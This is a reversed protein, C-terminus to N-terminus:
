VCDMKADMCGVTAETPGYENHILIHDGYKERFACLDSSILQEGGLMIHKLENLAIPCTLTNMIKLHTPTMKIISLEKNSVVGSLADMVDDGYIFVKGGTLLPFYISTVTLDVTESTFFPMAHPFSYIDMLSYIYNALNSHLVQVGKPMGTSGSTYILYCPAKPNSYSGFDCFDTNELFETINHETILLKAKSDQICYNIREIPSKPDLPLYAAGTKLIGLMTSIMVSKRPLSFAVVDGAMVGKAILAKAIKNAQENLEVYTLTKDCAVVAMQDPTKAAQEEFLQHICKNSAYDVATDNFAYLLKWKEEGALINLEYIKKADDQIADFLLNCIHQHMRTIQGETFKDTQYDYHIRFVGENDRDDIHIQLSDNQMGSHYWTTECNGGSVTANQYSLMVDYLKESFNHEKRIASLVDGYNFKQHRFSSFIAKGVMALNETFSKENELEMLLPVTNIFMGMTRKERAGSRNLVATGLYFKETNMKIRNIYVALVTMFVTYASTKNHTAYEKIKLTQEADLVFTKRAAKYSASQKESLYTVEDCKKFQELFFTRDNAYRQSELYEKESEVYECYSCASPEEGNMITNFQTGILAITWADGVIHHFKVLIGYQEPLVIVKIDCLDGYFDMPKEALKQAYSDLEAKTAFHLVEINKEAYPVVQQSPQGGKESIRIRLADNLQFMQNVAVILEAEPKGGSLLMCGCIVNIAGGAFKEMDYILKQPKTLNM